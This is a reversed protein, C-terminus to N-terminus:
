INDYDISNYPYKKSVAHSLDKALAELDKLLKERSKESESSLGDEPIYSRVVDLIENKLSKINFNFIRMTRKQNNTLESSLSGDMTKYVESANDEIKKIINDADSSSYGSERICNSVMSVVTKAIYKVKDKIYMDRKSDTVIKALKQTAEM